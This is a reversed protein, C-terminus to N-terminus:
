PRTAPTLTLTEIPGEGFTVYRGDRWLPLFDRYHRDLVNGSQGTTNVYLSRSFDSLDLVQRYSPGDTMLFSGDRRYSGVNVTSADGGAEAELSFLARLVPVRDFVGHPFRAHHIKGWKWGAPDAGMKEELLAVARSLSASKWEGCSEKAPTRVNDCWPSETALAQILFRSRVNGAPIEKLEDQPMESLKAYWAAYIAAADSGPSFELNWGKLKELARAAESGDPRTDLLLPMLDRAQLSVRDQQIAAVDELGIRPVALIRETIRAARYPEPWDLTIPYPYRRSVARNNATAVFGRPPDLVRPLSEFPIYGSWDDEGTGPVPLTGDARPRIPVLGSATYGIHGDVDAYVLNQAPADLRSAASLFESWNRATAMGQFAETTSDSPDLGTWRLAVAPSGAGPEGLTKAGDLVDTVIPGHVSERIRVIEERGGRVRITETRTQFSRWAGAHFYRSRDKPDTRELFLDQVDPELSTLGWAIRANHGIIVSPIGPLTAGAVSLGPAELRALYWVSPTRLGLHPDNALIPRGSKTRSGSLVWSNSGVTEGGFGLDDLLAFRSELAAWPVPSAVRSEPSSVGRSRLDSTRFGFDSITKWEDDQVITPQEPVEPFLEAAKEAGLAAAIRARRIEGAANGSALDWAMIKAWGLSDAATFLEPEVRLLRMELPRGSSSALFANVGAAYSDLQSRAEASLRALATEAARRFGITRLFRDTEVLRKGLIESLRGAAIRRQFEMQWLRDRAHAYGLGFIADGASLARITVLGHSDTEIRIPGAIGALPQTGERTPFTSLAVAAAFLVVGALLAAVAALARRRGSRM